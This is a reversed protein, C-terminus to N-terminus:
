EGGKLAARAENRSATAGCDCEVEAEQGALYEDDTTEEGEFYSVSCDVTHMGDHSHVLKRLAKEAREARALAADRERITTM